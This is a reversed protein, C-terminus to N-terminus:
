LRNITIRGIAQGPFIHIIQESRNDLTLGIEQSLGSKVIRNRIEIGREALHGNATIVGIANSPLMLRIGTRVEKSEGPRLIHYHISNLHFNGLNKPLEALPALKQIRIQKSNDESARSATKKLHTDTHNSFLSVTYDLLDIDLIQSCLRWIKESVIEPPLPTQGNDCRITKTHPHDSTIEKYVAEANQLHRLDKEHIDITRSGRAKQRRRILKQSIEAPMDLIITLDPKPIKLIGYEINLLWDFYAKRELRNPIKGGQHGMNSTIYRDAIVVTGQALKNQINFSADYRDLAYFLSAAYPNVDSAQGYKGSLYEEVLGASKTGYQPFDAIAVDFGRSKLHKELLALQTTKGSGDIGDIVIFKGIPKKNNHTTM